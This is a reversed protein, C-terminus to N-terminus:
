LLLKEDVVRQLLVKTAQNLNLKLAEDVSLWRFEEAEENLIVKHSSAKALYNLLIFHEPRIFEPSDICDQNMVFRIGSITLQTEELIERKLADESSEGREIKGGPIGWLDSWKHTRIMLVKGAGDHILAGVTAIPRDAKRRDFLKVLVGLDPVTIDPRVAALVEAHHYGTLVAISSIGGHRATEIDHTMDGIFATEDKHLSHTELIHAILERKDIVGSYTEEFFDQMEFENLQRAFATPDMSTLVFMRMGRQKAWELKERAHPLVTVLSTAGDFAPRFHAELETLAVGPLLEEYFEHYPLRFSRRFGERDYPAIGYKELVVNTAEIVPGMDDVLTGSWDFILNKFM